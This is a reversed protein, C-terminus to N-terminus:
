FTHPDPFETQHTELIVLRYIDFVAWFVVRTGLGLGVGLGLGLGAWVVKARFFASMMTKLQNFIRDVM